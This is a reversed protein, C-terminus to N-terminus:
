LSLRMKNNINALKKNTEKKYVKCINVTWSCTFWDLHKVRSMDIESWVSTDLKWKKHVCLFLNFPHSTTYWKPPRSHSYESLPWPFHGGGWVSINLFIPDIKESRITIELLNLPIRLRFHLIPIKVIFCLM